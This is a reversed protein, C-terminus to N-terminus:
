IEWLGAFVEAGRRYWSPHGLDSDELGVFGLRVEM